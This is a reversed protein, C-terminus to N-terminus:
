NEHANRYRDIEAQIELQWQTAHARDKLAKPLIRQAEEIRGAHACSRAYHYWMEPTADRRGTAIRLLAEADAYREALFYIWGLTDLLFSPATERDGLISELQAIVEGLVKTKQAPRNGVALARAFAYNNMLILVHRRGRLPRRFAEAYAPLARRRGEPGQAEFIGTYIWWAWSSDPLRQSLARAVREADPFRKLVAYGHALAAQQAPHLEESTRTELNQLVTVAQDSKGQDSLLQALLLQVATDKPRRTIFERCLTEALDYRQARRMVAVAQQLPALLDPFREVALQAAKMADDTLKKAELAQVRLAHALAEDPQQQVWQTVWGLAADHAGARLSLRVASLLFRRKDKAGPEAEKLTQVGVVGKGAAFEIGALMLRAVTDEPHAAIYIKCVTEAQDYRGAQGLTSVYAQLFGVSASNRGYAEQTALLAERQLREALLAQALQSLAAADYPQAAVIRRLYSIAEAGKGQAQALRAALRLAPVLAPQYSLTQQLDESAQRLRNQTTHIQALLMGAEATQPDQQQVALLEQEAEALMELRIRRKVMELRFALNSLSEGALEGLKTKADEVEGTGLLVDLELLRVALNDPWRVRAAAVKDTVRKLLAEAEVPSDADGTQTLLGGVCAIEAAVFDPSERLCEAYQKEAEEYRKQTVLFNGLLYHLFSQNPRNQILRRLQAEASAPEGLAAFLEHALLQLRTDEPQAELADQLVRQAADRDRAALHSRLLARTALLSKPAYRAAQEAMQIAQQPQGLRILIRSYEALWRPDKPSLGVIRRWIDAAQETRGFKEDLRASQVLLEIDNADFQLQEQITQRLRDLKGQRELSRFLLNRASRSVPNLTLARSLSLEADVNRGPLSLYIQGLWLHIRWNEHDLQTAHVLLRLAKDTEGRDLLCRGQMATGLGKRPPDAALRDALTRAQEGKRFALMLNFLRVARGENQSDLELARRAHDIAENGVRDAAALEKQRADAPLRAAEARLVLAHASMYDAVAALVEPSGAHAKALDAVLRASQENHSGFARRRTREQVLLAAAAPLESALSEMPNSQANPQRLRTVEAELIVLSPMDPSLQTAASLHAVAQDLHPTAQTTSTRRAVQSYRRLATRCLWTLATAKQGPGRAKQRATEFAREAADFDERALHARGTVIDLFAGHALRQSDVEILDQQLDRLQAVQALAKAPKNLLMYLEALGLWARYQWAPSRAALLYQKEAAGYSQQSQYCYGLWYNAEPFDAGSKRLAEQFKLRARGGRKETLAILGELCAVFHAAGRLKRLTAVGARAEDTQGADVHARALSALLRTDAPDQEHAKRLAEVAKGPRGTSSFFRGLLEWGAAQGSQLQCAQRLEREADDLRQLRWHLRGLETHAAVSNPDLRLVDNLRREQEQFKKENRSVAASALLLEVSEPKAILATEAQQRAEDLRDLSVLFRVRTALVKDDGPCKAACQDLTALAADGQKRLLQARALWIYGDSRDPELRILAGACAELPGLPDGQTPDIGLRALAARARAYYVPALRRRVAAHDPDLDATQQFAALAARTDDTEELCLGYRYHIQATFRPDGTANGLSVARKYNLLARTHDGRAMYEEAGAMLDRQRQGRSMVRYVGVGVAALIALLVFGLIIKTRKKL